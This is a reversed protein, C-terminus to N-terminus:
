IQEFITGEEVPASNLRNSLRQVSLSTKITSQWGGPMTIRYVNTRPPLVRGIEREVRERGFLEARWYHDAHLEKVQRIRDELSGTFEPGDTRNYGFAGIHDVKATRCWAVSTKDREICFQVIADQEYFNNSEGSNKLLMSEPFTKLVYDRMGNYYIPNADLAVQMLKEWRFCSNPSYYWPVFYTADDIPAHMNFVWGCSAFIDTMMGHTERHWAICDPHQIVDDESLHILEFGCDTAWRFAEMVNYSNGHYRHIPAIRSGANFERCVQRLEINNEGRDSFVMIKVKKDQARISELACWLYHNRRYTPVIIVEKKM